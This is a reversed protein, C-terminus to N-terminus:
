RVIVQAGQYVLSLLPAPLIGIALTAFASLAIAVGRPTGTASMPAPQQDPERMFMVVVVRLYYAASIVSTLVGIVALWVQGSIVASQFLFYKGVFGATPPIGTLSLMSVTMVLALLPRRRALGAYADISQDEGAPTGMVTMVAFAALTSCAYAALYFLVAGVGQEGGASVGVLAYGAHAISSYALMRKLNTQALAVLNGLIMTLAAIVAIAPQWAASIDGLGFLFVRLIAAFGAAKTATAMLVTVSTPAGEYVDPTWMHFPVAAVKFGLGVMMLGAGAFLLLPTTYKGAIVAAAMANLNTTGTSGYLLAIGYVLFGSAFAGLLFYKLASEESEPRPRAIGCLIYLPISLLELSLFVMLLDVSHGMLMMGSVAFLLLPYFEGRLIGRSENYRLALLLTVLAIAGFLGDLFLAYSDLAVMDNFGTMTQGWLFLVAVLAAALPIASLWGTVSKRERPIALDIMLVVIGGIVLILPPLVTLIDNATM